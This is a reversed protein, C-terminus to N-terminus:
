CYEELRVPTTATSQAISTTQIPIPTTETTQIPISTIITEVPIPMTGTTQASVPTM